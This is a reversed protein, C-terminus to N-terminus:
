FFKISVKESVMIRRLNNNNFSTPWCHDAINTHDAERFLLYYFYDIIVCSDWYGHCCRNKSRGLIDQM